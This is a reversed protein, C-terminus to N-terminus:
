SRPATSSSSQMSFRIELEPRSLRLRHVARLRLRTGSLDLRKFSPCVHKVHLQVLFPSSVLLPLLISRVVLALRLTPSLSLTRSLSNSLASLFPTHSLSFFPVMVFCISLTDQM